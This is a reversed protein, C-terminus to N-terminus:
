DPLVLYSSYRFLGIIAWTGAMFFDGIILGIFFNRMKKFLQVGGYRMCLANCAWGVFFSFWLIRMASSYATLYGIPHIPWWYFRHYCVVLALMVVAGSITFILVWDGPRQPSEVLSYINDYVAVTTRTAWDLQLERLGFKYCLALMALLSIVVGAILTIAIAFFILRNNRARNTIKRSHLLSPMLSERLDVFLVKQIVAAVLVGANTFPKSGFFAMLGDMPAATLTFYAIGGQCIVRMAVLTFMFFAFVVLVSFLFPIGFYHCWIVIALSGLVFGWFAFRTSLWESEPNDDKKLGIGYRVINVFHFRALWALFLFFVIYAGIMQTEEPRSITPGFTVGLAAAPINLGLVSLVGFLLTGLIFFFWFSFSIQKSTLFAFGIFAPYIYIKLKFFGSLLGVKPFYKGALILTPIQPISPNYFALGNLLHLCVPVMLGALLFRNAFFQGLGNHDLAEQMMLPVRLLPFNMRENYLPQKSLLNVICVMVFYCLLVFITWTLLPTLWAAWPIQKLVEFWGLQRGGILGNYLSSIAEHSQPYWIDPMLPHLVESWRNEVTAFHFPATLNIFFTRALGTWAIGSLLIMLAWSVLLEKGTIINRDKFILRLFATLMMLWLLVYFPALPFHGGGLPTAHRYANNFPTILCIALAFFSGLLIARLRIKEGIKEEKDGTLGEKNFAAQQDDTM